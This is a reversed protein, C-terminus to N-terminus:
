PNGGLLLNDTEPFLSLQEEAQIFQHELRDQDVEDTPHTTLFVSDEHAYVVKKTGPLSEWIIPGNDACLVHKGHVTWVTIRGKALINLHRTRHIKGIAVTDAAMRFERVYQGDSHHHRTECEVQPFNRIFEQLGCIEGHTPITRKNVLMPSTM